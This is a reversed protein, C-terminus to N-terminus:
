AWAPWARDYFPAYAGCERDAFRVFRQVLAELQANIIPQMM